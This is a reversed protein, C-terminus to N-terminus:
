GIIKELRKAKRDFGNAILEALARILASKPMVTNNIIDELKKM